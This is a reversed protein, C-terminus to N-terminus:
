ILKDLVLADVEAIVVEMVDIVVIDVEGGCKGGFNACLYM